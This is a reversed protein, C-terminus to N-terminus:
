VYVTCTYPSYRVRHLRCITTMTSSTTAISNYSCPFLVDLPHCFLIDGLADLVHPIAPTHATPPFLDSSPANAHTKIKTECKYIKYYKLARKVTIFERHWSYWHRFTATASWNLNWRIGDSFPQLTSSCCDSNFASPLPVPRGERSDLSPTHPPSITPLELLGVTLRNPILTFFRCAEHRVSRRLVVASEGVRHRGWSRRRGFSRDVHARGIWDMAVSTFHALTTCTQSWCGWASGHKSSVAKNCQM